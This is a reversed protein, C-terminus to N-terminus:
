IDIAPFEFNSDRAGEEIVEFITKEPCIKGGGHAVSAAQRSQSVFKEYEKKTLISKSTNITPACIAVIAGIGVGIFLMILYAILVISTDM